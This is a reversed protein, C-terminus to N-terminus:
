FPKLIMLWFLLLLAVFGIVATPAPNAASVLQRLEDAPVPASPKAGRRPPVLGAAVRIRNYGRALGGMAGTTLLLVGLAVWIWGFRWWNQQFGMAIGSAIILTIFVYSAVSSQRSLDTLSRISDPSTERRLRFAM